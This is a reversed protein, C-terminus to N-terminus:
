RLFLLFFYKLKRFIEGWFIGWGGTVTLELAFYAVLYWIVMENYITIPKLIHTCIKFIGMCLGYCCLRTSKNFISNGDIKAAQCRVDCTKYNSEIESRWFMALVNNSVIPSIFPGINYQKLNVKFEHGSLWFHRWRSRVDGLSLRRNGLLLVNFIILRWSRYAIFGSPENYIHILKWDFTGVWYFSILWSETIKQSVWTSETGDRINLLYFSFQKHMYNM